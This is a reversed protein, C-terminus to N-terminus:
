ETVNNTFNLPCRLIWDAVTWKALTAITPAGINPFSQELLTKFNLTIKDYAISASNSLLTESNLWKEYSKKVQLFKEYEEPYENQWKRIIGDYDFFMKITSETLININEESKRKNEELLITNKRNANKVLDIEKNSWDVVKEASIDDPFIDKNDLGKRIYKIENEIDSITWIVINFDSDIFPYKWGRVEAEKKRAHKILEKNTYDPVIFIWKKVESKGIYKRLEECNARLKRIDTTIKTQQLNYLKENDTNNDPCYCQFVLWEDLIFWEIWLDWSVKAPMEQFSLEYKRKLCKKCIDEWSDWDYEWYKTIYM